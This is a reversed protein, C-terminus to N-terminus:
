RAPGNWECSCSVCGGEWGRMPAHHGSTQHGCEICRRVRRPLESMLRGHQPEPEPEAPTHQVWLHGCWTCRSALHAETPITRSCLPELEGSPIREGSRLVVDELSYTPPAKMVAVPSLHLSQVAAAMNALGKALAEGVATLDVLTKAGTPYLWEGLANYLDEVKERDLTCAMRVYGPGRDNPSQQCFRLVNRGEPALVELYDVNPEVGYEHNFIAM